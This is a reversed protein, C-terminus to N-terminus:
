DAIVAGAFPVCKVKFKIRKGLLIVPRPFPSLMFHVPAELSCSTVVVGSEPLPVGPSVEPVENGLHLFPEFALLRQLHGM